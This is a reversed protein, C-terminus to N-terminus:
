ELYESIDNDEMYERVAHQFMQATDIYRDVIRNKVLRYAIRDEMNYTVYTQFLDSIGKGLKASAFGQEVLVKGMEHWGPISGTWGGARMFLFGLRELVKVASSLLRRARSEPCDEKDLNKFGEIEYLNDLVEDLISDVYEREDVM